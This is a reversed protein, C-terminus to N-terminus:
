IEEEGEEERWNSFNRFIEFTEHNASVSVPHCKRWWRVMKIRKRWWRVKEVRKRRRIRRMKMKM